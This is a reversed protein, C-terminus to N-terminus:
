IQKLIIQLPKLLVNPEVNSLSLIKSADSGKCTFCSYSLTYNRLPTITVPTGPTRVFITSPSADVVLNNAEVAAFNEFSIFAYTKDEKSINLPKSSNRNLTISKLNSKM